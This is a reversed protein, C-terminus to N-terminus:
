EPDLPQESREQGPQHHQEKQPVQAARQDDDDGDRDGQQRRDDPEPQQALRDIEHREASQRQRDPDEDVLRGDRDLIDVDV